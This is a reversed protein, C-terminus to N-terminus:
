EQNKNKAFIRKATEALGLVTGAAGLAGEVKKLGSGSEKSKIKDLKSEQRAKYRETKYQQKLERREQKYDKPQSTTQNSQQPQALTKPGTYPIKSPKRPEM